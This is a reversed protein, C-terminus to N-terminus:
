DEESQPPNKTEGDHNWVYGLVAQIVKPSYHHKHRLRIVHSLRDTIVVHTPNITIDQIHEISTDHVYDRDIQM